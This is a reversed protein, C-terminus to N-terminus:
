LINKNLTSIFSIYVERIQISIVVISKLPGKFIKVSECITKAQIVLSTLSFGQCIIFIFIIKSIPVKDSCYNVIRVFSFYCV